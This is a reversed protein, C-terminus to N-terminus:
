KKIKKGRYQFYIDRVAVYPDIAADKVTEYEGIQFSTQNVKDFAKIGVSAETPEIYNVPTLFWDGAMGISDRLTSPGFVPWVIYFGDGMGYVALTQGFDEEDPSILEPYNDAPSGFGLFGVITNALFRSFELMAADAKGQFFCNAMRVPTTINHFFNKVGIRFFEPTVTKYGRALPKLVWFYLKDNFHFMARNWLSFPDAIQTKDEEFEDKFLDDDFDDQVVPDSPASEAKSATIQPDSLSMSDTSTRNSSVPQQHACGTWLCFAFLILTLQKKLMNM